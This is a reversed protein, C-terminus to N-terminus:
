EQGLYTLLNILKSPGKKLSSDAGINLGFNSAHTNYYELIYSLEIASLKLGTGRWSFLCWIPLSRKPKSDLAENLNFIVPMAAM